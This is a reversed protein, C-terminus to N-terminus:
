STTKANKRIPLQLPPQTTLLHHILNLFFGELYNEFTILQLEIQTTSNATPNSDGNCISEFYTSIM